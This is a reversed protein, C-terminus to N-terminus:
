NVLIGIAPCNDVMTNLSPDFPFPWSAPLTTGASTAKWGCQTTGFSGAVLQPMLLSPGKLTRFTVGTGATVILLVLWYLGPDPGLILNGNAGGTTTSLFTNAGTALTIPSSCPASYLHKPCGTTSRDDYIGFYITASASGALTEVSWRTWTESQSTVNIPIAFMDQAVAAYPSASVTAGPSTFWGQSVRPLYVAVLAKCPVNMQSAEGYASSTSLKQAAVRFADAIRAAGLESPHLGDSGLAAVDKSIATDIDV